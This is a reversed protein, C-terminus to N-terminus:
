LVQSIVCTLYETEPMSLLVPHDPSAGRVELIRIEKKASRAARKLAELFDMRSVAHSCSSTILIGGSTVADLATRNLAQHFSIAKNRHSESKALAPPDLFVAEYPGSEALVAAVDGCHFQCATAVGNIEANKQAMEIAKASSDVGFVSRAGARAALCSWLGVYCHGDFVRKGSLYRMAALSNERQDLFLGTKQPNDLDVSLRLGNVEVLVTSPVDGFTFVQGRIEMRVGRIEKYSLWTDALLNAHHAYFACTSKAVVVESYRDATLGPLKDSEGHVWRYVVERPYLLRRLHLAESLRKAFFPQSIEQQHRSLIRVAIGGETQYFGRGVFRGNASFVDVTEGDDAPIDTALENRFVWLHGRLLRKEENPKLTLKKM